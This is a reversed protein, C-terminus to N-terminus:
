KKAAKHKDLKKYIYRLNYFHVCGAYIKRGDLSGIPLLNILGMLISLFACLDLFPYQTLSFIDLTAICYMYEWLMSFAKGGLISFGFVLNATVGASYICIRKLIPTSEEHFKTYGGIPLWGIGYETSGVKCHFITFFPHFGIYCKQVRIKLLRATILHGLEHIAIIIVLLFLITM